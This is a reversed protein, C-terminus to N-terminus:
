SPNIISISSYEPIFDEMFCDVIQEFTVNTVLELCEYVDRHGAFHSTLMFHAISTPKCYVSVYRGYTAKKCRAFSERDLGEVRLRTIENCLIDYIQMPERSEGEFLCCIFDRGGFMESSFTSNIVGTDYLKRYLDSSEGCIMDMIIEGYIQKISNTVSDGSQGKFGIQFVPVSIPFSEEVSKKLVERPEDVPASSVTIKEAPKLVKDAIALAEVENFNGALILVMNNLNYFTNYCRYLLDADIDAISEVTGAIDVKVPNNHYMAGLLNFMVKWAPNDDYMHIEQAIIGQEKEVNEKTFYPTTVQNLLIEFSENFNSTCSFLYATKDFSTFANASAGTKAYKVFADGELSEFMKHELFHAIGAPVTVFDDERETKFTVDISGVQAAFLAYATSYGEMPCLLIDLGSSHKVQRYQQNILPTSIIKNMTKM